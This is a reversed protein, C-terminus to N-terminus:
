TSRSSPRIDAPQDPENRVKFTSSALVMTNRTNRATSRQQLRDLIESHVSGNQEDLQLHKILDSEVDEVDNPGARYIAYQKSLSLTM